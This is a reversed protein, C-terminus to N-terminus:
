VQVDAICNYQRKLFNKTQGGKAKKKNNKKGMKKQDAVTHQRPELNFYLSLREGRL